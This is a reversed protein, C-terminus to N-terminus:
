ETCTIDYSLSNLSPTNLVLTTVPIGPAAVANLPLTTGGAYTTTSATPTFVLNTTAGVVWLTADSIFLDVLAVTNGPYFSITTPSKKLAIGVASSLTVTFSVQSMPYLTSPLTIVLQYNTQAVNIPLSFATEVFSVSTFYNKNSTLILPPLNDYYEGDGSKSFYLYNIGSTLSSLRIPFPNGGALLNINSPSSLLNSFPSLYTNRAYVSSVVTDNGTLLPAIYIDESQINAIANVKTVLTGDALYYNLTTTIPNPIFIPMVYNCNLPYSKAIISTGTTDTIELSYRYENSTPNTPNIVGTVTLSYTSGLVLNDLFPMKIRM